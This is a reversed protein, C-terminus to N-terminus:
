FVLRTRLGFVGVFDRDPRNAPQWILQIDPSVELGELLELRYFFESAFQQRSTDSPDAWVWAMGLRDSTRGFPKELLLGLAVMTRARFADDASHGVRLFPVFQEDFTQDASFAFGSGAPNDTTGDSNWGMFRYHGEGLRSWIRTMPPALGIELARFYDGNAFLGLDDSPPKNPDGNADGFGATISLWARPTWLVNMGTGNGPFRVTQDNVFSQMMFLTNGSNAVRNKNFFSTQDIRGLQFTLTGDLLAHRWWLQNVRTYSRSSSDNTSWPLGIRQSFDNGNLTGMNSRTRALLGIAGRGARPRDFATWIGYMDLSGVATDNPNGVGAAQQAILTYSVGLDLRLKENLYDRSRHWLNRLRLVPHWRLIPLTREDSAELTEEIDFVQASTAVPALLVLAVIISRLLRDLPHHRDGPRDV